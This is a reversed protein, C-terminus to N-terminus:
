PKFGERWNKHQPHWSLRTRAKQNSVGRQQIMLYIAYPGAVLAGIFRPIRYPAPAQLITAYGPLWERFPVPEDDVINYIGPERAALAAVTAAAADEVHIFSFVGTGEGVIPVRRRRVDAAFTGDGAYTTGPGYFYGFRLLFGEIGSAKLVTKELSDVAQIIEVFSAPADLYLREEETALAEGEPAYAFAISQAIFRRAGAAQAAEVLIQTGETRLRNTRALEKRIRRPNLRKPIATLQHIVVEPEAHIVSEGLKRRDFVDCVVPEAGLQRIFNAGEPSRTLATVEHGHGLLSPLLSRGIVGTGGAVFVKM